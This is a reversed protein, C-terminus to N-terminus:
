YFTTIDEVRKRKPMEPQIDGYGVALVSVIIEDEPIKLLDRLANADRIGMVLTSLGLDCAKLMLNENHLGLDYAGWLNGLENSPTGDKDFGSRDKVFSTVILASADKANEANFAPLAKEKVQTLMADSTVIHYRATQSNKWSPALIAASIMKELVEQPIEQRQYRRISRRKELVTQLEM